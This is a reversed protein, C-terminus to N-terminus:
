KKILRIISKLLEDDRDHEEEAVAQPQNAQVYQDALSPSTATSPPTPSTSTTTATQPQNATVYQSALSPQNQAPPQAQQNPQGGSYAYQVKSQDYGAGKPANPDVVNSSKAVQQNIAALKPNPQTPTRQAQSQATYGSSQNNVQQNPMNIQKGFAASNPDNPNIATAPAEDLYDMYKRMLKGEDMEDTEENTPQPKQQPSPTIPQTTNTPQQPAPAVPMTNTTPQQQPVASPQTPQPAAPVTPKSAQPTTPREDWGDPKYKNPNAVVDAQYQKYDDVQRQIFQNNKANNGQTAKNMADLQRNLFPEDDKGYVGLHRDSSQAYQKRPDTDAYQDAAGTTVSRYARDAQAWNQYDQEDQATNQTQAENLVDLYQRFFNTDSM